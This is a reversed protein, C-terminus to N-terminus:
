NEPGHRAAALSASDENLLIRAAAHIRELDANMLGRANDIGLREELEAIVRANAYSHPLAPNDSRDEYFRTLTKEMTSNALTLETLKARYELHWSELENWQAYDAFHQAEHALFNVEFEEGELSDYSPVVAFLGDERAWGGVNRASCSAYSIWGRSAFDDMFVVRVEQTSEPLEVTRIEEEQSRWVMLDHVTGTIGMIAYHGEAEIESIARAHLEAPWALDSIDEIGRAAMEGRVADELAAELLEAEQSGTFLANWYARYRALLWDTFGADAEAAYGPNEPDFRDIMCARFAQCEDPLGDSPLELLLDRALAADGQLAHGIAPAAEHSRCRTDTRETEDEAGSESALCIAAIATVVLQYM